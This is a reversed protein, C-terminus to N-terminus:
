LLEVIVRRASDWNFFSFRVFDFYFNVLPPFCLATSITRLAEAPLLNIDELSPLSSRSARPLLRGRGRLFSSERGAPAPVCRVRREEPHNRRGARRPGIVDVMLFSRDGDGM